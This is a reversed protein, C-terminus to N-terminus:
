HCLQYCYLLSWASLHHLLFICRDLQFSKMLTILRMRHNWMPYNLFGLSRYFGILHLFHSQAYRWYEGLHYVLIYLSWFGTRMSTRVFTDLCYIWFEFFLGVFAVHSHRVSAFLFPHVYWVVQFCIPFVSLLTQLFSYVSLIFLVLYPCLLNPHAPITLCSQDKRVIM